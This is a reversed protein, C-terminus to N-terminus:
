IDQSVNEWFYRSCVRSLLASYPTTQMHDQDVTNAVKVIFVVFVGVFVTM